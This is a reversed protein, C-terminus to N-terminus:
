VGLGQRRDDLRVVPQRNVRGLAILGDCIDGVPLLVRARQAQLQQGPELPDLRALDLVLHAPAAPDRPLVAPLSDPVLNNRIPRSIPLHANSLRILPPPNPEQPNKPTKKLKTIKTAHPHATYYLGSFDQSIYFCFENTRNPHSFSVVRINDVAM